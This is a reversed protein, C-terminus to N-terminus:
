SGRERLLKLIEEQTSKISNIDTRLGSIDDKTAMTKIDDKTAMTSEIRALSQTHSEDINIIQGILEKHSEQERIIEKLDYGHKILRDRLDAQSEKLQLIDARAGGIQITVRNTSEQVSDIKQELIDLRTIVDASGVNVNIAKMEDTRQEKLKRVEEELRNYKTELRQFDEWTPQNM